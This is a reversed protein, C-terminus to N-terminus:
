GREGFPNKVLIFPNLDYQLIYDLIVRSEQISTARNRPFRVRDFARLDYVSDCPFDDMYAIILWFACDAKYYIHHVEWQGAIVGYDECFQIHSSDITYEMEPFDIWHRYWAPSIGSIRITNLIGNAYAMDYTDHVNDDIQIIDGRRLWTPNPMNAGFSSKARLKLYDTRLPRPVYVKRPGPAALYRSMFQKHTPKNVLYTRNHIQDALPIHPLILDWMVRRAHDIINPSTWLETIPQWNAASQETFTPEM